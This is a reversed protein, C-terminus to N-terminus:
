ATAARSQPASTNIIARTPLLALEDGLRAEAPARKDDGGAIRSALVDYFRGDDTPPFRPAGWLVVGLRVGLGLAAVVLGDRSRPREAVLAARARALRSTM